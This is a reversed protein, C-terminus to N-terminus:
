TKHLLLDDYLKKAARLDGVTLVDKVLNPSLELLVEHDKFNKWNEAEKAFPQLTALIIDIDM